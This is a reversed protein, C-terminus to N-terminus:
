SYKNTFWVRYPPGTYGDPPRWTVRGEAELLRLAGRVSPGSLGTASAIESRRAGPVSDLYRLVTDRASMFGIFCVPM